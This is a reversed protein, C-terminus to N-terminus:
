STGPVKARLARHERGIREGRKKRWWVWLGTSVLLLPLAGTLCMAVRGGFGFATGSHLPYLWHMFTEGANRTRDSREVLIEATVPHVWLVTDGLRHEDGPARLYFVYGGTRQAPMHIEVTQHDPYAREVAASVGAFPLPEDTATRWPITPFSAVPSFVGVLDRVYNLYVLTAGTVTALLLLVFFLVGASRHADFAIRTGNSKPNLWVLRKCEIRKRPWALVAGTIVSAMLLFGAIGVVNSGTAGLLVNRHFEYLTGMLQPAALGFSGLRRTGLAAGSAPDFTAEIREPGVRRNPTTRLTVRYVDGAFAPLRVREVEAPAHIRAAREAIDDVGLKMAGAPPAVTLLAPNLWADIEDEFVLLSGTAGVLAFWVGIVIGPWRHLPFWILQHRRM